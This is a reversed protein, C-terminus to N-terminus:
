KIKTDRLLEREAVGANEDGVPCPEDGNIGAWDGTVTPFRCFKNM